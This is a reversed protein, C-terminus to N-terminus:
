VRPTTSLAPTRGRCESPITLRKALPPSDGEVLPLQATLRLIVDRLRAAREVLRPPISPIPGDGVRVESLEIGHRKLEEQARAGATAAVAKSEGETWGRLHQVPTAPVVLVFTSAPDAALARRLEAVLEPSDATQHAVVLYRAM